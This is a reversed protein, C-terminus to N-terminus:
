PLSVSPGAFVRAGGRPLSTRRPTRLIQPIIPHLGATTPRIRHFTFGRFNFLFCLLLLCFPFSCRFCRCSYLCSALFTPVPVSASGFSDAGRLQRDLWAGFPIRPLDFLFDRCQAASHKKGVRDEDFSLKRPAIQVRNKSPQM